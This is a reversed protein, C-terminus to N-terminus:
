SNRRAQQVLYTTYNPDLMSAAFTDLASAVVKFTSTRAPEAPDNYADLAAHIEQEQKQKISTWFPSISLRGDDQEHGKQRKEHPSSTDSELKRKPNRGSETTSAPPIIPQNATALLEELLTCSARQALTLLTVGTADAATLSDRNNNALILLLQKMIERIFEPSSPEDSQSLQNNLEIAGLFVARDFDAQTNVASVEMVLSLLNVIHELIQEENESLVDDVAHDSLVVLLQWLIKGTSETNNKVHEAAAYFLATRGGQSQATINQPHFILLSKALPECSHSVALILPTTEEEDPAILSDNNNKALILLLQQIIPQVPLPNDYNRVLNVICIFAARDFEAQTQPRHRTIVSIFLDEFTRQSEPPLDNSLAALLARMIERTIETDNAACKEAAYFLATHAAQDQAKLDDKVKAFTLLKVVLPLCSERVAMMLPTNGSEDAFALSFGSGDFRELFINDEEPSFGRRIIGKVATLGLSSGSYGHAFDKDLNLGPRHSFSNYEELFKTRDATAKKLSEFLRSRMMILTHNQEISTFMEASSADRTTALYRWIYYGMKNVLWSNNQKKHHICEALELYNLALAKTYPKIGWNRANFGGHQKKFRIDARVSPIKCLARTAALNQNEVAIHMLTHGSPTLNNLNFRYQEDFRKLVLWLDVDDCVTLIKALQEFTPEFGEKVLMAAFKYNKCGMATVFPTAQPDNGMGQNVPVGYRIAVRALEIQNFQACLHLLSGYDNTQVFLGQYYPRSTLWGLYSSVPYTSRVLFNPAPTPITAMDIGMQGLFYKIVAKQDRIAAQCLPTLGTAADAEYMLTPQQAIVQKITQIEGRTICAFLQPLIM